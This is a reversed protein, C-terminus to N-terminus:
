RAGESARAADTCDLLYTMAALMPAACWRVHPTRNRWGRGRQFIFAGDARRLNESAYEFISWATALLGPRVRSARAFTQIGQAASQTDIPFTSTDFYKPTGDPLFLNGEYYSLGRALADESVDIGAQSCVLLSELLYGTHFGDVWGLGAVEGYPWSGDRRQHAVAYAVGAEAVRRFGAREVHSSLRALFACALGNANHIPTRDGVLYGFYAGNGEDTLPVHNLFFDGAGVALELLREEATVEFADLLALGAFATAITNPAGRPYFFVRTQVDFHYGWCPEDFGSCRLVELARVANALKARAEQAGLFGNLAYASAVQALAASNQAPRIGLLPRLNVPSRKM